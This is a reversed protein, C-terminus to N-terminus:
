TKKVTNNKQFKQLAQEMKKNEAKEELRSITISIVTCILFSVGFSIWAKVENIPFWAFAIAFVVMLIVICGFFCINRILLRMHKIWKDTLFLVQAITIIFALILLQFLTNISFGLNGLAFLSSYKSASNGIIVGFIMFITVIVGYITFLQGIYDFITKNEKM